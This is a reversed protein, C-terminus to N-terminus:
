RTDAQGISSYVTFGFMSPLGLALLQKIRALLDTRSTGAPDLRYYRVTQYNQAFAYCFAPPETDFGAIDYPWYGEPPVGFLLADSQM